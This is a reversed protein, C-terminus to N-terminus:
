TGTGRTSNRSTWCPVSSKRRPAWSSDIHEVLEKMDNGAKGALASTFLRAANLPQLLDHSASALFRTKSQNAQEASKAKLM